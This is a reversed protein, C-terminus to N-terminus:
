SPHAYLGGEVRDGPVNDDIVDGFAGKLELTASLPDFALTAIGKTRDPRPEDRAIINGVRLREGQPEVNVTMTVLVAVCACHDKPNRIEDAVDALEHRQHRAVDYAGTSWGSDTEALLGGNIEPRAGDHFETNGTKASLALVNDCM